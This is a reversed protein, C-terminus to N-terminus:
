CRLEVSGFWQYGIAKGAERGWRVCVCMGEGGARGWDKEIETFMMVM